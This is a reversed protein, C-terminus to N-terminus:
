RNLFKVFLVICIAGLVFILLVIINRKIVDEIILLREALCGCLGALIVFCLAIFPIM